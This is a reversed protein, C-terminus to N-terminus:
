SGDGENPVDPLQLVPMLDKPDAYLSVSDLPTNYISFWKGNDCWASRLVEESYVLWMRTLGARQTKPWLKKNEFDFKNWACDIVKQVVKYPFYSGKEVEEFLTGAMLDSVM